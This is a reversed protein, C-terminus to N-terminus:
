SIMQQLESVDLGTFRAISALDFGEAMMRQAIAAQSRRSGQEIGQALGKRLGREMADELGSDYDRKWKMPSECADVLEPDRTFALYKEHVDNLIPDEALLIKLKEDMTGDESLKGLNKLCYLWKEIPRKMNYDIFGPLELFHIM